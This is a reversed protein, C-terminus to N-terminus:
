SFLALQSRMVAVLGDPDQQEPAQTLPAPAAGSLETASRKARRLTAAPPSASAAPPRAEVPLLLPEDVDSAKPKSCKNYQKAFVREITGEPDTLAEPHAEVWRAVTSAVPRASCIGGLKPNRALAAAEYALVRAYRAPDTVSLVWFWAVPQFPCFVCGSKRIHGLGHRALIAAEDDKTIGLEILPYVFREYDRPRHEKVRRAEDAAIGVIVTHPEALGKRVLVGWAANNPVGYLEAGLASRCRALPDGKSALSCSPNVTVAITADAQLEDLLGGRWHFGGRAAREELPLHKSEEVWPPAIHAGKIKTPRWAAWVERDPKELILWRLGMQACMRRAHAIAEYSHAWEWGPDSFVVLHIDKPTLVRRDVVLGGEALLCLLTFSDRGLGFNLVCLPGIRQPQAPALPQTRM